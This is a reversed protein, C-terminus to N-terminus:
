CDRARAKLSKLEAAADRKAQELEAKRRAENAAIATRQLAKIAENQKAVADAKADIAAKRRNAETQRRANDVLTCITEAPLAELAAILEKPDIM